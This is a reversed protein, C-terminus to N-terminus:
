SKTSFILRSLALFARGITHKIHTDQTASGSVCKRPDPQAPVKPCISGSAPTATTKPVCSTGERVSPPSKWNCASNSRIKYEPRCDYFWPNILEYKKGIAQLWGTDFNM